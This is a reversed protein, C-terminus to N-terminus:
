HYDEKVFLSQLKDKRGRLKGVIEGEDEAEFIMTARIVQAIAVKHSRTRDQM